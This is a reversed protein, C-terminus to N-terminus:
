CKCTATWITYGEIGHSLTGKFSQRLRIWNTMPFILYLVDSLSNPPASKKSYPEVRIIEWDDLGCSLDGECYIRIWPYCQDSEDYHYDGEKVDIELQMGVEFAVRM